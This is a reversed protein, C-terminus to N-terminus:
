RTCPPETRYVTTYLKILSTLRPTSQGMECIQRCLTLRSGTFGEAACSTLSTIAVVAQNNGNAPDATQSQAAVAMRLPTGLPLHPAVVAIWFTASADNALEPATCAITTNAADQVPAACTWGVAAETVSPALLADFVFSVAAHGAAGPGANAVTATFVIPDGANVSTPTASATVWLDASRFAPVRIALRVPDHDSTGLPVAADGFNDVGFDANIRAHGVQLGTAGAVLAENVLVHDLTQANGAFVYSYRQAPDAILQSGDVLLSTLPSAVHTLVQDAAAADGKIVGLVDVYGDNFEFANFDGLLVIREAPDAQQMSEVLSALYAAQAGRKVRVREGGTAWGSSGSAVDDIGNLSRLHNVIVTVPYAAGNGGRVVARLRLPPRDNLVSTSGNPNDITADKGIQTVGLVEIRAVGAAVARTSVLFGVNIGGVDNGSELYPVYAPARACTNNIREALLGMVRLNEIEVVGLIDPAKVYDCIALATKTLRKDLAAATLTVAGNGDAVEDFLRLVNFSAITVADYDADAVAEPLRGGSVTPPTAADPLMAWTGAVYDLVGVLGAVQAETDVSLAVAGVQGRSRVMLREPNTDFLPPNKGAPLTALAVDLVGIGPERFPRQVQPLVVHFVGDSFALADNEDISGGSPAVVISQAVSVRMGEYRELTGPFAASGLDSAGLEIAAPLARGTALQEVTPSVLETITLQNPASSSVYEEVTATVRVLNGVAASAPPAGGTFVFVAESTASDGDDNASQLFFGNNFRIATVIGETVVNKEDHVSLLGSGQIQAITLAVPPEPPPPPEAGSNRPDPAGTAFDAGNNGTDISGAGKRLAATANSLTATPATESCNAASGYGVFDVLAATGLPCAGTLATTTSVLAVKGATGAMAIAGTADPTPLDVSGGAGAAQKVLFYGGAPISGALDTRATWTTGTSSTYQLSWSALSVASAGNNRLEIFDNRYTAGSNGGGGYVQSIVVQAQATGAAGLGFALAFVLVAARGGTNSM